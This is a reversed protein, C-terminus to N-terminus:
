EASPQFFEPVTPSALWTTIEEFNNIVYIAAILLVIVLIISIVTSM